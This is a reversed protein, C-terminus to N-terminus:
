MPPQDARLNRGVLSPPEIRRGHQGVPDFGEIFHLNEYNILVHAVMPGILEGTAAFLAGLLLGVALASLTWPVFTRSPGVHLIGFVLSSAWLGLIPQMAGRFFLEEAIGSTLAFVAIEWPRLPGLLERFALHLNRAWATRRVLKQSAGVIAGALLVGGVVSAGIAGPRGIALWPRTQMLSSDGATATWALAATALAGYVGAATLLRRRTM